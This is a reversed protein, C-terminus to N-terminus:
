NSGNNNVTKLVEQNIEVKYRRRLEEMWANEYVALYDRIVEEKVDEYSEPGKKLKKGMVFVYPLVPDPQFGGCKFVLKDIYRNEGIRFVGAEMRVAPSAADGALRELAEKWESVPKKKLYKRIASAAKKNKCWIVAGRYHPLDWAYDSKHRKFFRELDDTRFSGDGSQYKRALCAALLGDHLEQLRFAPIGSEEVPVDTGRRADKNELYDLIQERAEEYALSERRDVWKVIHIGLPSYFPLSVENRELADLREVWEQMNKNVPLWPLLGGEDRSEQDDSCRRALTGFDAGAQLASYVSDMLSRAAIETRRDANQPLYKSIHAIRVWGNAQLRRKKREYMRRAEEEEREPDTLYPKLLKGRYYSLQMRFAPLTDLGLERAHRVKLKYDVFSRLFLDASRAPSKRYYYEFEALSVPEGGIYLAVEGQARMQFAFGLLLSLIGVIRRPTM